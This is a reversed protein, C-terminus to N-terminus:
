FGMSLNIAPAPEKLKFDVPVPKRGGLRDEYALAGYKLGYEYVSKTVKVDQLCYDKIKQIEGQKWWEVAQLGHGSKRYGVTAAAVDDLKLRFGLTKHIEELIDLQPFSNLDGPYYNNLIPTDFFRSNYGILRDSQELRKWLQPFEREEYCLYEDTEYFYVGVVSIRMSKLDSGAATQTEIDFVVERSMAPPM